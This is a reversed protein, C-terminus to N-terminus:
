THLVKAVGFWLTADMFGDGTAFNIFILSLISTRSATQRGSLKRCGERGAWEKKREIKVSSWREQADGPWSHTMCILLCLNSDHPFALMWVICELPSHQLNLSSLLASPSTFSTAAQIDSGLGQSTHTIPLPILCPLCVAWAMPKAYFSLVPLHFSNTHSQFSIYLPHLSATPNADTCAHPGFTRTWTCAIM